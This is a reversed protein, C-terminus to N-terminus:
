IHILSLMQVYERPSPSGGWNGPLNPENWIVYGAVRGACHSALAFMFDGFAELDYPLEEGAPAMAWGPASDVRLVVKLGETQANALLEDLGLWRYDDDFPEALSWQLPWVVWDFNMDDVLYAHDREALFAGFGVQPQEIALRSSSPSALM